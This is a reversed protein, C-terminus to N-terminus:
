DGGIRKEHAYCEATTQPPKTPNTELITAMDRGGYEADKQPTSEKCNYARERCLIKMMVM